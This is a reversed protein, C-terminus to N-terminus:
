FMNAHLGQSPIPRNACAGDVMWTHSREQSVQCVAVSAENFGVRAVDARSAIVPERVQLEPRGVDFVAMGLETTDDDVVWGNAGLGGQGVGM